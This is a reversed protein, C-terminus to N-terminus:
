IYFLRIAGSEPGQVVRLIGMKVMELIALFTLIMDKRDREGSFMEDFSVSERVELVDIIRSIKDKLSMGEPALSVPPEDPNKDLIKQFADILEFLGIRLMEEGATMGGAGAEGFDALPRAFTDAGLLSRAGLKEAASKIRMYELVPRVIEMRPDEEEEEGRRPAPPLLTRSKIQTLTAAMVLFDGAVDINMRKMWELCDLFEATIKEIPIDYIDVENKQILHVLLDMPGEFINEVKVRHREYEM